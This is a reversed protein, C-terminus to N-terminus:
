RPEGSESIPAPREPEFTPPVEGPASVARAAREAENGGIPTWDVRASGLLTGTAVALDVQASQYDSLARIESSQADALRAAADLVDTSTRQGVDFQRQEAELTRAALVTAQRAALIRQWGAGIRDVADFVEQRITKRRSERSILRQLRTLVARRLRAEAAENGLPIEGSFGFSGSQFQGDTLVRNSGSFTTGLGAFTYSADLNLVPLVQNRNFEITTADQLLQLEVQALEMRSEIAGGALAEADLEFPTPSPDTTPTVLVRSELDLGPTNMLRKLERQQQRIANEAVIIAEVRDAMGSQARIIEVESTAGADVRRQAKGLQERALEFQQVRVDLERRAAFLRWYAREASALQAIVQLKTRAEAAQGEYAAIRISQMTANRGGNRLLPQTVSFRLANQYSNNSTVFANNTQTYTSLLDASVRGGDRMPVTLGLDGSVVEQQNPNTVQFTPSDDNRYRVSPTFVANFKAEEARLSEGALTPDVLAVKLDLNNTLVAARCADLGLEYREMGEFRSRVAAELESAAAGKPAPRRFDDLKLLEVTRLRETPLSRARDSERAGLPGVCGGNGGVMAGLGVCAVVAAVRVRGAGGGSTGGAARSTQKM